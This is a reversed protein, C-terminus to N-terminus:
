EERGTDWPRPWDNPYSYQLYGGRGSLYKFSVAAFETVERRTPDLLRFPM